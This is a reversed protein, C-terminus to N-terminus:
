GVSVPEIENALQSLFGGVYFRQYQRSAHIRVGLAQRPFGAHILDKELAGTDLLDGVRYPANALPNSRSWSILM